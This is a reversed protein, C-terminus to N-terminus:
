CQSSLYRLRGSIKELREGIVHYDAFSRRDLFIWELWNMGSLLTTSRDWVRIMVRDNMTLPRVEEYATLADQRRGVDDGVLSGLLRAVDCTANDISMSGFDILGSVEDGEFLVHGDHIDRLCPQLAVDRSELAQLGRLVSAAAARYPPVIDRVCALVPALEPRQASQIRQLLLTIRQDTWFHIKAIRAAIGPSPGTTTQQAPYNETALHFHALTRMAALLREDTPRDAFNAEGPLWPELQWRRDAHEIFTAGATTELPVPLTVVGQAAVHKLVGHIFELRERDPHEAPWARLCLAGRPTQLRWFQAGSFGGATGLSEVDTPRCDDAYFRLIEDLRQADNM